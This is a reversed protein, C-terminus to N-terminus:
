TWKRYPTGPPVALYKRRAAENEFFRIMDDFSPKRAFITETGGWEEFYPSGVSRYFLNWGYEDLESDEEFIIKRPRLAVFQVPADRDWSNTIRAFEVIWAKVGKKCVEFPLLPTDYEGLLDFVSIQGQM